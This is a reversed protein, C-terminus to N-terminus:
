RSAAAADQDTSFARFCTAEILAMLESSHGYTSVAGGFHQGDWGQLPNGPNDNFSGNAAHSTQSSGSGLGVAAAALALLAAPLVWRRRPGPSMAVM